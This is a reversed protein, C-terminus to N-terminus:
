LGAYSKLFRIHKDVKYIEEDFMKWSGSVHATRQQGEKLEVLKAELRDLNEKATMPEKVYIGDHTCSIEYGLERLEDYHKRVLDFFSPLFVVSSTAQILYNANVQM